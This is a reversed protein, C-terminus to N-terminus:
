AQFSINNAFKAGCKLFAIEMCKSNNKNLTALLLVPQFFGHFFIELFFLYNLKSVTISEFM